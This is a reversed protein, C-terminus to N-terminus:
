QAHRVLRVAGNDCMVLLAKAVMTGASAGDVPFRGVIRRQAVIDHQLHDAIGTAGARQEIEAASKGAQFGMHLARTVARNPVGAQYEKSNAAAARAPLGSVFIKHM